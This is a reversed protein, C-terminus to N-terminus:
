THDDLIDNFFDTYDYYERTYKDINEEVEKDKTMNTNLINIAETIKRAQFISQDCLEYSTRLDCELEKFLKNFMEIKKAFAKRKEESILEEQFRQSLDNLSRYNNYLVRLRDKNRAMIGMSESLHSNM